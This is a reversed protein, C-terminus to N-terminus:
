STMSARIAPFDAKTCLGVYDTTPQDIPLRAFLSPMGRPFRLVAAQTWGHSLQRVPLRSSVLGFMVSALTEELDLHERPDFAVDYSTGEPVDAYCYAVIVPLADTPLPLSLLERFEASDDVKIGTPSSALWSLASRCESEWANASLKAAVMLYREAAQTNAISKM